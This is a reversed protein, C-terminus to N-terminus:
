GSSLSKGRSAAYLLRKVRGAAWMYKLSHSPLSDSHTCLVRPCRPRKQVQYLFHFIVAGQIHRQAPIQGRNDNKLHALRPAPQLGKRRSGRQNKAHYKRVAAQRADILHLLCAKPFRYSCILSSLKTLLHRWLCIIVSHYLIVLVAFYCFCGFGPFNRM